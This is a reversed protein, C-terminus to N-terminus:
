NVKQTSYFYEIMGLHVGQCVRLNAACRACGNLALNIVGHEMLKQFEMCDRYLTERM